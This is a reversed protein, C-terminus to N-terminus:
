RFSLPLTFLLLLPNLSFIIIFNLQNSRQLPPLDSDFLYLTLQLLSLFDFPSCTSPLCQECGSARSEHSRRGPHGRAEIVESVDARKSPAPRMAIRSWTVSMINKKSKETKKPLTESFNKSMTLDSFKMYENIEPYLFQGYISM